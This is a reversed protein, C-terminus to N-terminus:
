VGNQEKRIAKGLHSLIINRDLTGWDTRRELGHQYAQLIALRGCAVGELSHRGMRDIYDIEDETHWSYARQTTGM